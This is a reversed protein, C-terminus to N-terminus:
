QKVDYATFATIYNNLGNNELQKTLIKSSFQDDDIVFILIEKAGKQLNCEIPRDSDEDIKILELQLLEFTLPKSIFANAGLIDLCKVKENESPDGSIVIIPTRKIDSAKEFRRIAMIMKQGSMIPMRLDTMIAHFYGAGHKNM